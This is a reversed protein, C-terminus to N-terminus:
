WSLVNVKAEFLVFCFFFFPVSRKVDLKVNGRLERSSSEVRMFASAVHRDM